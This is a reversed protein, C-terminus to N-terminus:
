WLKVTKGYFSITVMMMSWESSKGSGGPASNGHFFYEYSVSSTKTYSFGIGIGKKVMVLDGGITLTQQRPVSVYAGFDNLTAICKGLSHSIVYPAIKIKNAPIALQGGFAVDSRKGGFFNRWTLDYATGASDTVPLITKHGVGYIMRAGALLILSGRGIKVPQFEWHLSMPLWFGGTKGQGNPRINLVTTAIGDPNPIDVSARLSTDYASTKGTYGYLGGGFIVAGWSSPVSIYSFSIGGGNLSLGKGAVNYYGTTFEGYQTRKALMPFVPLQYLPIVSVVDAQAFASHNWTFLLYNLIILLTTKKM